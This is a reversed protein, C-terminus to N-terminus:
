DGAVLAATVLHVRLREADAFVEVLGHLHVLQDRGGLAHEADRLRRRRGSPGSSRSGGGRESGVQSEILSLRAGGPRHGHETGQFIAPDGAAARRRSGGCRTTTSPISRRRASSTSPTVTASTPTAVAPM